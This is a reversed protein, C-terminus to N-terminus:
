YPTGDKRTLIWSGDASSFAQINDDPYEVLDNPSRDGIELYIVHENSNNVLYHADGSGAKFGICEGPGMLYENKGIKVTPTGELIYIFEDQSSHSHLLASMSGPELETLNVGFNSLGFLNGLKKKTRGAVVSDFPAPYITEGKKAPISKASVPKISM